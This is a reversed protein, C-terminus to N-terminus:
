ENGKKKPSISQQKKKIDHQEQAHQMSQSHAQSNMQMQHQHQRAMGYLEIDQLQQKFKLEAEQKQQELAAKHQEKAVEIEAKLQDLQAKSEAKMQEIQMKMQLEQAKPDPQPQPQVLLQEYSPVENAELYRKSAEMPNITGLSLLKMTAEARAIKETASVSQPDAAPKVDNEPGDFDSQEIQMDLIDIEQQPDLYERNLIYIKQFEKALSRYLRKYVATFVKMGQEISAMTTTAPTNQGPMKGVFIEAVSALEKGSKVLLDLLNFLVGSPERVPLPFIQKKIDDGTANVAKWEGPSFKSDGMKIRLGKGIFGAQLNSLSGADILQNILTNVSENIPGLLRGFGIDYFSGDPNPIFGFKTYYEFPEIKLINGKEDVEIGDYTYRPVIRLVKKSAEEITIIYPEPYGDDDLDYFTHQELIVYPTTQDDENQVLDYAKGDQYREPQVSPKALTIDSFIGALQRERLVRQSMYIIETKREVDEISKAWYNVVLNKPLILKSCNTQKGSDWYTKKFAMGTIPVIMLLKDMEEEWDPMEDMIQYSMYKSIRDAREMKQGDPDSGIVRCKVVRGDSPVLSPYARAAFQMSATALLPFKVNSANQWPYTKKDSVQLALETWKDILKEWDERSSKDAQYGRHVFDGIKALLQDDLDEAINTSNLAKEPSYAM